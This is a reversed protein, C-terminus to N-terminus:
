KGGHTVTQVVEYSVVAKRSGPLVTVTAEVGSIKQAIAKLETASNKAYDGWINNHLVM